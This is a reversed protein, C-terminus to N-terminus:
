RGEEKRREMVKLVDAASNKDGKRKKAGRKRKKGEGKEDDEDGEKGWASLKIQRDEGEEQDEFRSSGFGLDMDDADRDRGELMAKRRALKAAEEADTATSSTSVTKITSAKKLAALIAPDTLPNSPLAPDQPPSTSTDNFYNRTPPNKPPPPPPMESTQEANARDPQASDQDAPTKSSETVKTSDKSLDIDDSADSDDDDSNAGGLPDYDNGVGEFIDIDEEPLVEPAPVEPVVMGLPKASGDPVLLRSPENSAQKATAVKKVKRKVNGDADVTVLVERGREDREIQPGKQQVGVKKFKPGLISQANKEEAAKLRSEKLERLIDDRTRKRGALSAPPPAMEGKKVREEKVLPKLEKGELDELAEDVDLGNVVEPTEPERAVKATTESLVDEGRRVRELLKRDLGKVLHVHNVDGGIIEDRLAEFTAQDMQGLKVMDELAKVRAAKEDDEVSTRLQTRDHYGAALKSGKPAASSRFKKTSTSLGNEERLQRAFDIGKSGAVSRRSATLLCL